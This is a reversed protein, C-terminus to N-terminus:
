NDGWTRQFYRQLTWVAVHQGLRVGANVSFRFHMGGWVRANGIENILQSASQYHRTPHLLNPVTATIDLNINNTGLFDVLAYVVAESACGHASPYEPHAPTPALPKWTPDAQTFPNGDLDGQPIAFQPRWALYHYKADWCAIQADVSVINTMAFLRAAQVPSLNRGTALGQFAANYQMIPASTWFLATDAMEPTRYPSNTGGFNKSENYSLAYEISTLAPPPGPRFQDPSDLLFPRFQSVWPLVPSQGAPLQFVGIAPAPMVFGINAELGDGQRFAILSAASAQGIAIGDTKAPDDAVAALSAALDADLAAQQAPFSHVLVDHAASAAAADISANPHRPSLVYHYPKYGGQIAVVADYVAAQVYAVQIFTETPPQKAVALTANVAIANWAAITATGSPPPPAAAASGAEGALALSLALVLPVFLSFLRRVSV